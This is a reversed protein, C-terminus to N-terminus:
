PTVCRSDDLSLGSEGFRIYRNDHCVADRIKMICGTDIKPNMMRNLVVDFHLIDSVHRGIVNIVDYVTPQFLVLAGFLSGFDSGIRISVGGLHLPGGTEM